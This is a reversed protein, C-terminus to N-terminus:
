KAPVSNNEGRLCWKYKRFDATGVWSEDLNILTFKNFDIELLTKAFQQRLVKNKDSNGQFSITNIKKYRLDLENRMVDRIVWDKVDIGADEKIQNKVFGVTSIHLDQDLM